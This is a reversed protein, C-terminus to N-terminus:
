SAPRPLMRKAEDLPIGHAIIKNLKEAYEDLPMGVKKVFVNIAKKAVTCAASKVKDLSRTVTQRIESKKASTRARTFALETIGLDSLLHNSVRRISPKHVFEGALEDFSSQRFGVVYGGEYLWAMARQAQSYSLGAKHALYALTLHVFVGTEPNYIGVQMTKLDLHSLIVSLLKMIAMRQDKRMTKTSLRKGNAVRELIAKRLKVLWKWSHESWQEVRSAALALIEPVKRSGIHNSTYVNFSSPNRNVNLTTQPM